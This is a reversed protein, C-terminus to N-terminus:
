RPHEIFDARVVFRVVKDNARLRDFPLGKVLTGMVFSDLSIM